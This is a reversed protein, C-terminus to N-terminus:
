TQPDVGIATYYGAVREQSGRRTYVDPTRLAVVEAIVSAVEAASQSEPFSRSDPGGHIANLGFDTRVVGPSVISVQIGPHTMQVEARFTITLANLFHKAGCYASRIVAFPMRGLLSSVNIIHGDNRSQFHPLVEQMGYLASKVNVQMVQDIDEDTLQSPQRTIGQGVNNVWVDIRGFRALASDVVRRVDSRRGVDAVISHGRGHCEGAVRDLEHQRRAVLVISHGQGALHSASAAGIGASAGTIVIVKDSM